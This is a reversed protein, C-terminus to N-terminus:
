PLHQAGAPDARVAPGCLCGGRNAHLALNAQMQSADKLGEWPLREKNATTYQVTGRGWQQLNSKSVTARSNRQVSSIAPFLLGVLVAILGVVVLMEVITFGRKGAGFRASTM